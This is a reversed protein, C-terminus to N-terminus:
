LVKATRIKVPVHGNLIVANEPDLGFEELIKECTEKKNILKYYPVTHEKHTAKDAILM